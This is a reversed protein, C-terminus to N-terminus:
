IVGKCGGTGSVCCISANHPPHTPPPPPPMENKVFPAKLKLKKRHERERSLFFFSLGTASNMTDSQPIFNVGPNPNDYRGALRCLPQYSLGIQSDVIYGMWLSHIQSSTQLCLFNSLGKREFLSFLFLLLLLPDASKSYRQEGEGRRNNSEQRRRRRAPRGQRRGTHEQSAAPQVNRHEDTYNGWPRSRTIFYFCTVNLCHHTYGPDPDLCLNDM